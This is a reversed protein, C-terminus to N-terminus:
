RLLSLRSMRVGSALSIDRRLALSWDDTCADLPVRLPLQLRLSGRRVVDMRFLAVM